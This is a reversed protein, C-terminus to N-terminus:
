LVERKIVLVLTNEYNGVLVLFVDEIFSWIVGFIKM